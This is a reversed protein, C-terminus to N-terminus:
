GSLASPRPAACALELRIHAADADLANLEETKIQRELELKRVDNLLTREESALRDADRQLAQLRDTARRAMAETSARDPPQAAVVMLASGAFTASFAFALLRQTNQSNQTTRSSTRTCRSGM